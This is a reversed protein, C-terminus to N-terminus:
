AWGQTPFCNMRLCVRGMEFCLLLSPSLFCPAVSRFLILVFSALVGYGHGGDDRRAYVRTSGASGHGRTWRVWQPFWRWYGDHQEAYRGYRRGHRRPRGYQKRTGCSWRPVANCRWSCRWETATATATATTTTTTTTTAAAAAAARTCYRAASTSSARHCLHPGTGHGTVFISEGKPLTRFPNGQSSSTM